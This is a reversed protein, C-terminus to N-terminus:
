KEKMMSEISKIKYAGEPLTLQFAKQPVKPNWRSMTAMYRPTGPENKYTILLKRPFPKTGDQIWIEWDITPQTFALHNCKQSGVSHKGLITASQIQPSVNEYIKTSILDALPLVMRYHKVLTDLMADITDPMPLDVYLNQVKDLVILKKGTYRVSRKEDDGEFEVAVQNPRDVSIIRRRSVQRIQNTETIIDSVQVVSVQFQDQEALFRSMQRLIDMAPNAENQKPVRKPPKAVLYGEKGGQKGKAYYVDNAKYYTQNGHMATEYEAPLNDYFYGIPPYIYEYYIDGEYWYPYYWEYHRRFYKDGKWDIPKCNEPLRALLPREPMPQQPIVLSQGQLPGGVPPAYQLSGFNRPQNRNLRKYNIKYGYPSAPTRHPTKRIPSSTSRHPTRRFRGSSYRITDEYDDRLIGGQIIANYGCLIVLLPFIM